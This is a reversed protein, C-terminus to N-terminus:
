IKGIAYDIMHTELPRVTFKNGGRLGAWFNGNSCLLIIDRHFYENKKFNEQSILIRQQYEYRQM